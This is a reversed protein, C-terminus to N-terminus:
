RLVAYVIINDRYSHAARDFSGGCTILRLEPSSTDGYVAETPFAAKAIQDVTSVEFHVTSGDARAIDIGDGPRLEHLRYFIGRQRDGDVHGLVVAPGPEGPAPGGTFWGAQLPKSVPPVQVSGDAALGLPVLSSHADIRPIDIRVPEFRVPASPSASVPETTTSQTPPATPPRSPVPACGGVALALLMIILRRVLM